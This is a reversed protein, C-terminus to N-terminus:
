PTTTGLITGGADREGLFFQIQEVTRGATGSVVYDGTSVVDGASPNALSFETPVGALLHQISTVPSPAPTAMPTPAIGLYIPTSVVTTNGTLTSYAYARLDM